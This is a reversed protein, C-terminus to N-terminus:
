SGLGAGIPEALVILRSARLRPLASAADAADLVYAGSSTPGDVIRAGAGALVAKIESERSDPSFLVIMNGPRAAPGSGLAHYVTPQPDPRGPVLLGLLVAAAAFQAALAWRLDVRRAYWRSPATAPAAIPPPAAEDIRRSLAAWGAEADSTLDSIEEALMRDARLDAACESCTALHAEVLAREDQELTDNAFWPLLMQVQRHVQGHLPIIESM